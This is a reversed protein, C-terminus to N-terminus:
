ISFKFCISEEYKDGAELIPSPFNPKNPADPFNQCEIAVGYRNQHEAGAKSIGAGSLWNGTYVQAAPQTTAVELLIGSEKSYLEAAPKMCDITQNDLVWCHDYGHGIKLAEFDADIDQGIAKSATFDMPTGAVAAFEGTPVQTDDTPLYKSAYVKLEQAHVDGSSEGNLNFYVHNTLNVITKAKAIASYVVKLENDDSWNYTASVTIEGPYGEEGDEATYTFIVDNAIVESSWIRNMFGTPGGHLHNVGNNIALNYVKNDLTFKGLAIRNAFRGVSKGLAAGDNLYNKYDKFGLTVDVLDGKKNPVLISDITAGLNILTVKAGSKNTLTFKVVDNNDSMQGLIEKTIMGLQDNINIIFFVTQNSHIYLM